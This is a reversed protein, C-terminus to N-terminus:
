QIEITFKEKSSRHTATTSEFPAVTSTPIFDWAEGGKVESRFRVKKKTGPTATIGPAFHPASIQLIKGTFLLSFANQSKKRTNMEIKRVGKIKKSLYYSGPGTMIMKKAKITPFFIRRLAAFWLILAALLAVGIWFFITKLPNWNVEYESRLSLSEFEDAPVANIIDIEDADENELQFYRKGTKADTNFVIKVIADQNPKITFENDDNLEKSNFYVTFDSPQGEAAKVSMKLESDPRANVFFPKLDFTTEGPESAKSWLFSDHWQAKEGKLEEREGDAITLKCQIYDTMYVTVEPNAIVSGPESIQVKIPFVYEGGPQIHHSLLTHLSDVSLSKRSSIKLRAKLNGVSGDALEVKFYPDDCVVTAKYTAPSSFRLDHIEDLENINAHISVNTFDEIQPIINGSCKVIYADPCNDIAKEIIPSVAKNNLMVYFLRVNKSAGCWSAILAAVKEPSDQNNPQGDTLLYIRNDKTPDCNNFARKLVPSIHTNRSQEMAVDFEARIDKFNKQYEGSSFSFSKFDRDGFPIITFQADKIKSQTAITADLADLAPQWLGQKKMSNTCDFLFVNNRERQGYLSPLTAFAIILFTLLRYKTLQFIKM